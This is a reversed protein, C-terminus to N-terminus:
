ANVFPSVFSSSVRYCLVALTSFGLLRRRIWFRMDRSGGRVQCGVYTSPSPQFTPLPMDSLPISYPQLSRPLCGPLLRSSFLFSFSLHFSLSFSLPLSPSPSFLPISFCCCCCGLSDSHHPTTTRQSARGGCGTELTLPALCESKLIPYFSLSNARVGDVEERGDLGRARQAGNERKRTVNERTQRRGKRTERRTDSARSAKERETVRCGLQVYVRCVDRPLYYKCVMFRASLLSLPPLSPFSFSLLLPPFWLALSLSSSTRLLLANVLEGDSRVDIEEWLIM